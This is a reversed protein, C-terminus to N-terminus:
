QEGQQQQQKLPHSASASRRAAAGTGTETETGTETGGTETEGGRAGGPTVRAGPAWRWLDMSLARPPPAPRPQPPKMRWGGGDIFWRLMLVADAADHARPLACLASLAAPAGPLDGWAGGPSLVSKAMAVSAAKRADYDLHATGHHALLRAPAVFACKAGLRERLMIDLPQGACGPAQAEVVVVAASRLLPQDKGTLFADIYDHVHVIGRVASRADAINRVFPPRPQLAVARLAWGLSDWEVQACAVGVSTIGPDIAVVTLAM